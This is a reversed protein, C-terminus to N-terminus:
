PFGGVEVKYYVKHKGVHSAGLHWKTRPLGSIGVVPVEVVKPAKTSIKGIIHSVGGAHLSISAIRSKWHDFILNAIQNEARRKAM